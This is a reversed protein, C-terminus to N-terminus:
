RAPWPKGAPVIPARYQCSLSTHCPGEHDLMSYPPRQFGRWLLIRLAKAARATVGKSSVLSVRAAHATLSRGTRWAESTVTRAKLQVLPSETVRAVTVTGGMGLPPAWCAAATGPSVALSAEKPRVLLEAPTSTVQVVAM